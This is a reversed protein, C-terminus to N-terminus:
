VLDGKMNDLLKIIICFFLFIDLFLGFNFILMVGNLILILSILNVLIRLVFDGVFIFIELELVFNGIWFFRNLMEDVLNYM